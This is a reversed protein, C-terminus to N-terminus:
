LRKGLVGMGARGLSVAACADSVSGAAEEAGAVGELKAPGVARGVSGEVGEPSPVAVECGSNAEGVAGGPETEAVGASM